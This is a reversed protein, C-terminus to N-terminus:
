VTQNSATQQLRVVGKLVDGEGGVVGDDVKYFHEPITIKRM